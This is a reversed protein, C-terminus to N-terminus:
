KFLYLNSFKYECHSYFGKPPDPHKCPVIACNELATAAHLYGANKLANAAFRLYARRLTAKANRVTVSLSRPQLRVQSLDQVVEELTSIQPTSATADLGYCLFLVASFYYSRHEEEVNELVKRLQKAAYRFANLRHNARSSRTRTLILTEM